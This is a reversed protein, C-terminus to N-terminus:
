GAPRSREHPRCGRDSRPRLQVASGYDGQDGSVYALQILAASTLWADNVQQALELAETLLPQSRRGRRTENTLRGATILAAARLQPDEFDDQALADDVLQFGENVYGRRLWYGKLAICMRLVDHNRGVESLHSLASRINEYEQDLRDIWRVQELVGCSRQGASPRFRCFVDAHASHTSQREGSGAESLREAGYQRITELLGYRHGEATPEAQVLSKSVLSSMVALVDPEELGSSSCVNQCTDLDWGGAFVSLRRLLTQEKSTLADYSWDILARLTQQRPLATRRGKTLLRFRDDLRAEIDAVSLSPVWAAALEIALPMGDLRRCLSVVVSVQAQDLVFTSVHAKARDVFLRIAEFNIAVEPDPPENAEPLSLSPVRYLQEGDIGLAERSTALLGLNPCARMLLATLNSSAELVHECNDLVVLLRRGSIATVLTDEVPRGPEERVGLASAVTAGVLESDALPALEVLWVGDVFSDFAEAAVQLALRSKGSGGAGTLTVLRSHDLLSIVEAIETERGVFSTTQVPINHKLRPNDVSRLPPFDAELGPAALQVVREPRGVDKLGHM